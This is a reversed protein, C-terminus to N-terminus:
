VSCKSAMELRNASISFFHVTPRAGTGGTLAASGTFGATTALGATTGPTGEAFPCILPWGALLEGAFYFFPAEM